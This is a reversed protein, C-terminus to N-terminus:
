ADDVRTIYEATQTNVRITDGINVFLPVQITAGGEIVAPKTGGTATDGRIGPDTREVKRQVHKQPELGLLQGEYLTVDVDEGEKLWPANEGVQEETLQVQDYTDNDMLYYSSGDTYLFQMRKRVVHATEVKEGSRFTKEYVNGTRVDRLRTRVVAQGKGPKYHESTVIQYVQGDLEITLGPKFDTTSVPVRGAEKLGAAFDPFRGTPPSL